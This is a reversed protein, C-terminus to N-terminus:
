LIDKCVYMYILPLIEHKSIYSIIYEYYLYLIIEVWTRCVSHHKYRQIEFGWLLKLFFVHWELWEFVLLSITLYYWQCWFQYAHIAYM